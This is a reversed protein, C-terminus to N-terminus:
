SLPSAIPTSIRGAELPLLPGTHLLRTPIPISLPFLDANSNPKPGVLEVPWRTPTRSDRPVALLLKAMLAHIDVGDVTMALVLPCM